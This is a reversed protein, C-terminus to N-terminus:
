TVLWQGQVDKRVFDVVALQDDLVRRRTANTNVVSDHMESDICTPNSKSTSKHNPNINQHTKIQNRTKLAMRPHRVSRCPHIDHFTRTQCKRACFTTDRSSFQYSLRSAKQTLEYSIMKLKM